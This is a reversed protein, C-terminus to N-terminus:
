QGDIVLWKSIAASTEQEPIDVASGIFHSTLEPDSGVRLIDAWLQECQSIGWSYTRQFIPIILQKSGELLQTFLLDQAKM